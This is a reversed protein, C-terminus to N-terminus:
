NYIVTLGNTFNSGNGCPSVGGPDRFWVQYHRTDGASVNGNTIISSVTTGEGAADLFVVEVRETPTGACLVGDKFPLGILTAGQVLMSPQNPRAQTISFAIDDAAVSASGSATLIAGVGLSSKCGEGAGLVSENACPCATGSGDGFCIATAFAGGSGIIELDYDNCDGTSSAWVVVQIYYTQSSGTTNTWTITEDDTSTYGRVLYSTLDGCTALTDYLYIDIDGPVVPAYMNVTLTDLDAVSVEYFDEDAKSVYLDTTLGDVMPVASACTDNDELSDDALPNQCPDPVMTVSLDYNNCNGSSAWPYVRLVVSAAAGTTNTWTVQGTGLYGAAASVLNSCALDDYLDMDVDVVGAYTEDVTLSDGAAVSILYYDEDSVSTFLGTTSGAALAVAAGCSDNDELGDDVAAACPDPVSVISLDYNNCSGTAADPAARLVVTAAVGSTNTWTVQGAGGFSFSFDVQNACALDDFLELDVDTSGVYSVDITLIEDMPVSVLYYDEDATSTFLGAHAGAALAVAAGCTDNEELGDDIAAICPDPATSIVLDYDNCAVASFLEVRVIITMAVAGPNAYSVSENDTGTFGRVLYDGVLEGGCNPSTLPDYFYVDIDGSANSFLCDVTLIEGVPLNVSYFDENVTGGTGEVTLTNYTGNALAVATLCDDNPELADAAPCQASALGSLLVAGLAGLTLTKSITQIRM